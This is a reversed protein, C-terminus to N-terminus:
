RDEPDNVNEVVNIFFNRLQRYEALSFALHHNFNIAIFTHSHLKHLRGIGRNIEIIRIINSSRELKIIYHGTNESDNKM